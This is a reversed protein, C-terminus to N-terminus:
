PTSRHHPPSEALPPAPEAVRGSLIWAIRAASEVVEAVELAEWPDSGVAVVGHEGILTAKSDGLGAVVARALSESGAPCPESTHVPGVGLYELDESDPLRLGRFSWATAYPSHTHIIAGVEPRERYVALHLPTERSPRLRGGIQVGDSALLVLDRTRMSRYPHRTPTILIGGRGRVSVNGATAPVMGLRSIERAVAVVSRREARSAPPALIRM